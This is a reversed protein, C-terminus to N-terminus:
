RVQTYKSLLRITDKGDWILGIDLASGLPVIRDISSNAKELVSLIKHPDIGLYTITQENERVYEPFEDIHKLFNTNFLGLNFNDSLNHLDEIEWINIDHIKINLKSKNKKIARITNIYKDFVLTTELSYNKNKLFKSLNEWFISKAKKTLSSDGLWFINTPSSCANQDVLYTDNYFKELISEKNEQNLFFKSNIILSSVRNPFYLEICSVKKEFTKFNNVTDDGGWVIVSDAEKFLEILKISNRSSRFFINSNAINNYKKEKVLKDVIDLFVNIQDYQKSPLRVINSNGSLLGFLFSFAFNIPINSPSIHLSLGFGKRMKIETEYRERNRKLNSKRCFFGFTILDPYQKAKKDKLIKKSVDNLFEVVIEDFPSRKKIDLKKIDLKEFFKEDLTLMAVDELRQM